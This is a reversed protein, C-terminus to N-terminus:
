DHILKNLKNLRLKYIIKERFIRVKSLTMDDKHSTTIIFCSITSPSYLEPISMIPCNACNWNELYHENCQKDLLHIINIDSLDSVMLNEIDDVTSLKHPKLYITFASHHTCTQHYIEQFRDGFTSEVEDCFKDWFKGGIPNDPIGSPSSCYVGHERPECVYSLPLRKRVWEAEKNM